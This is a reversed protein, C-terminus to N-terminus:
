LVNGPTRAPRRPRARNLNHTRCHCIRCNSSFFRLRGSGNRTGASNPQLTAMFQFYDFVSGGPLSGHPKSPGKSSVADPIRIAFSTPGTPSPPPSHPFSRFRIHFPQGDDSVYSLDLRRKSVLLNPLRFPVFREIYADSLFSCTNFMMGGRLCLDGMYLLGGGRPAHYTGWINIGGLVTVSFQSVDDFM